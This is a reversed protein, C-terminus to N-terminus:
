CFKDSKKGSRYKLLDSRSMETTANERRIRYGGHETKERYIMEGKNGYTGMAHREVTEKEELAQRARTASEKKVDRPKSIYQFPTPTKIDESFATSISISIKSLVMTIVRMEERNNIRVIIADGGRLHASFATGHGSIVTGSTSILGRGDHMHLDVGSNGDNQPNSEEGERSGISERVIGSASAAAPPPAASDANDAVSSTADADVDRRSKKTKNKRAKKAKEDGKFVLLGRAM